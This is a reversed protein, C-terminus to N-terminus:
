LYYKLTASDYSSETVKKQNSSILLILFAAIHVAASYQLINVSCIHTSSLPTNNEVESTNGSNGM